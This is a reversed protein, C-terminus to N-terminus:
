IDFTLLDDFSCSFHNSDQLHSFAFLLQSVPLQNWTAAATWFQLLLSSLLKKKKKKQVFQATKLSLYLLM